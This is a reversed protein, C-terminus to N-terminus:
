VAHIDRRRMVAFGAAFLAATLVAWLVVFSSEYANHRIIYQPDFFAFPTVYRLETMGIVSEFMRLMFLSLTVGLTFPVVAKIKRAAMGIFMGLALFILQLGVFGFDMLLFPTLPMDGESVLLAMGCTTAFVVAETILLTVVSAAAKSFFIRSRSMPKTLLFDATKLRIEKSTVHLGTNMAQIAGMLALYTFLYAYFGAITFFNELNIGMMNRVDVGLKELVSHMAGIDALFSRGMLMYLVILALFSLTWILLSKRGCRFEHLFVNM